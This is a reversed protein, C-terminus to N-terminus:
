NFEKKEKRTLEIGAMEILQKVLFLSIGCPQECTMKHNKVLDIVNEKIIEQKSTNM